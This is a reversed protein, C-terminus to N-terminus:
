IDSVVLEDYGSTPDFVRSFKLEDLELIVIEATMGVISGMKLHGGIVNGEVTSISIHLHSNGEEVTGTSSVIEFTGSYENIISADAMRLVAKKLNGVGSLVVGATIKKAIVYEDIKSRLDEGEKLRFAHAKMM